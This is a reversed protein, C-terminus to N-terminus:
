RSTAWSLHGLFIDWNSTTLEHPEYMVRLVKITSEGTSKCAAKVFRLTSLNLTWLKLEYIRFPWFFRGIKKFETLLKWYLKSIKDYKQPRKMNESEYKLRYDFFIYVLLNFSEHQNFLFRHFCLLKNCFKYPFWRYYWTKDVCM